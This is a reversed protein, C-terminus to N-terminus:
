DEVIGTVIKNEVVVDTYDLNKQSREIMARSLENRLKHPFRVHYEGIAPPAKMDSTGEIDETGINEKGESDGTGKTDGKIKGADSRRLILAPTVVQLIQKKYTYDGLVDKFRARLLLEIEMDGLHDRDKLGQVLEAFKTRCSETDKALQTIDKTIEDLAKQSEKSLGQEMKELKSVKVITKEKKAKQEKAQRARKRQTAKKM